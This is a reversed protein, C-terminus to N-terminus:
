WRSRNKPRTNAMPRRARPPATFQWVSKMQKGGAEERMDAYNFIHKAKEERAAWLLTETSHTFFRCSLNPPPNPKEWTIANLVRFGLTQMAFGASLIVHHTGSVWITGTPKLLRRCRSLWAENFAHNGEAGRSKDWAGKDVSVMRGNQCTVGREVSFLAPRRFDPRISRRTGPDGHQQAARRPARSLGGPLDM